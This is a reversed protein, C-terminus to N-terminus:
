HIYSAAAPNNWPVRGFSSYGTAFIQQPMYAGQLYSERMDSASRLMYGYLRRAFRSFQRLMLPLNRTCSPIYSVAYFVLDLVGWM